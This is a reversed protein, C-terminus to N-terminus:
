DVSVTKNYRLHDGPLVTANWGFSIWSVCAHGVRGDSGLGELLAQAVDDLAIAALESEEIHALVTLAPHGM